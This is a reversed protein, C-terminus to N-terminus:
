FHWVILAFGSLGAKSLWRRFFVSGGACAQHSFVAHVHFLRAFVEGCNGAELRAAAGPSAKLDVRLHRAVGGADAADRRSASPM